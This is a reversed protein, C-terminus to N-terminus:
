FIIDKLKKKMMDLNSDDSSRWNIKLLTENEKIRINIKYGKKELIEILNYYVELLFEKHNITDPINFSIPLNTVLQEKNNKYNNDILNNIKYLNDNIIENLIKKKFINKKLKDASVLISSNM